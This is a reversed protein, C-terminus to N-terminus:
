ARRRQAGDRDPEVRDDSLDGSRPREDQYPVGPLEGRRGSRDPDCGGDSQDDERGSKSRATSSLTYPTPHPTYPNGGMRDPSSFLTTYPFLTSRPPRRIM